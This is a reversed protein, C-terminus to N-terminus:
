REVQSFEVFALKRLLFIFIFYDGDTTSYWM